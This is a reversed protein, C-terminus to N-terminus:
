FCQADLVEKPAFPVLVYGYSSVVGVSDVFSLFLQFASIKVTVYLNVTLSTSSLNYTIYMSNHM